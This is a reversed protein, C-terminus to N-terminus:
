RKPRQRRERTALCERVAEEAIEYAPRGEDPAAMKLRKIIDPRIYVLLPRRGDARAPATAKSAPKKAM